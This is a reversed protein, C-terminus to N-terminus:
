FHKSVYKKSVMEFINANPFVLLGQDKFINPFMSKQFWKLVIPMQFFLLGQDKFINPFMDYNKPVM